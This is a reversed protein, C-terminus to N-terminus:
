TPRTSEGRPSGIVRIGVFGSRLNLRTAISGGCLPPLNESELKTHGYLSEVLHAIGMMRILALYTGIRFVMRYRGYYLREIESPCRPRAADDSGSGLPQPMQPNTASSRKIEATMEVMCLNIRSQHLCRPTFWKTSVSPPLKARASGLRSVVTADTGIALGAEREIHVPQGRVAELGEVMLLAVRSLDLYPVLERILCHQGSEAADEDEIRINGVRIQRRSGLYSLESIVEQQVINGVIRGVVVVVIVM